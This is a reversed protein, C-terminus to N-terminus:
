GENPADCVYGGSCALAQEPRLSASSLVPCRRGSKARIARCQWRSLVTNSSTTSSLVGEGHTHRATFLPGTVIQLLFVAGTNSELSDAAAVPSLPTSLVAYCHSLRSDPSVDPAPQSVARLSTLMRIARRSDHHGCSRSASLAHTVGDVDVTGVPYLM